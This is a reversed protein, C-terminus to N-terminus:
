LVESVSAEADKVRVKGSMLLPLLEDSTRALISNEDYVAREAAAFSVAVEDFKSADSPISLVLKKLNGMSIKPQVAGTIIHTVNSRVLACRLTETAIGTGTLVHAHNNVWSPGWIYQVVPSGDPNVVSGDEGVLVLPEDFLAEDVFDLRGAAGYYPINGRRMERERSSLPIRKSNHFTALEELPKNRHGEQLAAEYKAAVLADIGALVRQNAAIKDELATLLNTLAIRNPTPCPFCFAFFDNRPLGMTTTGTAHSRCYSRYEPSRLVWYLYDVPFKPDVVDLRVTDQTLRGAASGVPVRAVAGLLDATQTVDKLSAYMQGPHVILEKPSEGGYTKLNDGRFGGHRNISGLGLLIPGPLGLLASKYTTGRQIRVVEGLRIEGM